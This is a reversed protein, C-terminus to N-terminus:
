DNNILNIKGITTENEHGMVFPTPGKWLWHATKMFDVGQDQHCSLCDSTVSRADSYSDSVYDSHDSAQAPMVCVLMLFLSITMKNMM